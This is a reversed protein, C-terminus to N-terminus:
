GGGHTGGGDMLWSCYGLQTEENHYYDPLLKIFSFTSSNGCILLLIKVSLIAHTLGGIWLCPVSFLNDGILMAQICWAPGHRGPNQLYYLSPKLMNLTKIVYHILGIVNQTQYMNQMPNLFSAFGASELLVPIGVFPQWFVFENCWPLFLCKLNRGLEIGPYSAASRAKTQSQTGRRCMDDQGSFVKSLSVARLPQYYDAILGATLSPIKSSPPPLSPSLCARCNLYLKPGVSIPVYNM